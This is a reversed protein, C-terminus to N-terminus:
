KYNFVFLKVTCFKCGFMSNWTATGDSGGYDIQIFNQIWNQSLNVLDVLKKGYTCVTYQVLFTTKRMLRPQDIIRSGVLM